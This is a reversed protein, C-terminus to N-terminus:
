RKHEFKLSRRTILSEEVFQIVGEAVGQKVLLEIEEPSTSPHDPQGSGILNLAKETSFSLIKMPLYTLRSLAGIPGSLSHALKEANRLALQKPVLEGFVLTLYSILVIVGTLAIGGAYPVPFRAILPALL